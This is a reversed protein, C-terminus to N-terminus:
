VVLFNGLTSTIDRKFFLKKLINHIGLVHCYQSPYYWALGCTHLIIVIETQIWGLFVHWVVHGLLAFINKSVM